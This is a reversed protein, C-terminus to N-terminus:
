VDQVKNLIRTANSLRSNVTKLEPPELDVWIKPFNPVLERLAALKKPGMWKLVCDILPIKSQMMKLEKDEVIPVENAVATPAGKTVKKNKEPVLTSKKLPTNTNSTETAVTKLAEETVGKKEEPLLTSIKPTTTTSPLSPVHEALSPLKAVLAQLVEPDIAQLYESINPLKDFVVKLTDPKKESLIKGFEPVHATFYRLTENNM